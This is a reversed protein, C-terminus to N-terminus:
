VDSRSGCLGLAPVIERIGADADVVVGHLRGRGRAEDDLKEGSALRFGLAAFLGM